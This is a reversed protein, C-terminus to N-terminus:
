CVFYLIKWFQFKANCRLFIIHCTYFLGTTLMPHMRIAKHWLNVGHPPTATHKDRWQPWGISFRTITFTLQKHTSKQPHFMTLWLPFSPHWCKYKPPSGDSLMGHECWSNVVSVRCQRKCNGYQSNMNLILIESFLLKKIFFFTYSLNSHFGGLFLIFFIWHLRTKTTSQLMGWLFKVVHIWKWATNRGVFILCILKEIQVVLDVMISIKKLDILDWNEM